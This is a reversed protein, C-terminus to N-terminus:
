KHVIKRQKGRYICAGLAAASAPTKSFDCYELAYSSGMAPIWQGKSCHTFSPKTAGYIKNMQEVYDKSSSKVSLDNLGQIQQIYNSVKTNNFVKPMCVSDEEDSAMVNVSIILCLLLVSNKLIVM